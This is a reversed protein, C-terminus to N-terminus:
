ATNCAANSTDIIGGLAGSVPCEFGTYAAGNLTFTLATAAVTVQASDGTGVYKIYLLPDADAAVTVASLPEASLPQVQLGFINAGQGALFAPAVAFAVTAAVVALVKLFRRMTM